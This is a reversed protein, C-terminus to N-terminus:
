HNFLFEKSTVMAWMMDELAQRRADRQSEITGTTVRSKALAESLQQRELATPYRSYASLFLYELIRSDSLGLKLFSSISGDPSNLKRNLTDGNIVHLAQSISPDSSRESADCISRQPRGFVTLFQSKVLSDPLELARTGAPYGPFSTSVGTIQSLADLIVEAPLRKVIYKSYYINDDKNTENAEASVQYTGSLMITRILQKIHLNNKKFDTILAQLLEENSTPNSIRVDDMPHALGRGMINAWVRNVIARAFYPNGPSTMWRSFVLRRDQPSDLPIPKGDLPTPPLPRLLRPHNIDGSTKAFIVVEGPESGNKIGVRSFLNAMEYYQKQTWKELPHNHCRACTLRQGLFAQVANETLDIPDKHLVFYNLQGYERNSGSTTFIERAFEDWPKDQKVSERIWKYFAWM